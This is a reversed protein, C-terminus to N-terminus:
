IVGTIDYMDHIASGSNFCLGQAEFSVNVTRRHCLLITAQVPLLMALHAKSLCTGCTWKETISSSLLAKQLATLGCWMGNM